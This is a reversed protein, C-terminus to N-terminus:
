DAAVYWLNGLGTIQTKMVVSAQSSHGVCSLFPAFPYFRSYALPAKHLAAILQSERSAVGNEPQSDSSTEL